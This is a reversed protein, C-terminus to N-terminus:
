ETEHVRAISDMFKDWKGAEADLFEKLSHDKVVEMVMEKGANNAIHRRLELTYLNWNDYVEERPMFPPLIDIRGSTWLRVMLRLSVPLKSELYCSPDYPINFHIPQCNLRTHEQFYYSCFSHIKDDVHKSFEPFFALSELKVISQAKKISGCDDGSESIFQLKSQDSLYEGMEDRLKREYYGFYLADHSNFIHKFLPHVGLYSDVVPRGFNHSIILANDVWSRRPTIPHLCKSLRNKGFISIKLGVTALVFKICISSIIRVCWKRISKFPFFIISFALAFICASVIEFFLLCLRIPLLTLFFLVVRINGFLGKLM